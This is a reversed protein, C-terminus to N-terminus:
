PKQWWVQHREIMIETGTLDEALEESSVMGGIGSIWNQLDRSFHCVLLLDLFGQLKSYFETRQGQVKEGRSFM